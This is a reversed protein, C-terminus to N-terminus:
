PQIKPLPSPLDTSLSTLRGAREVLDHLQRIHIPHPLSRSVVHTVVGRSHRYFPPTRTYSAGRQFDFDFDSEKGRLRFALMAFLCELTRWKYVGQSLGFHNRYIIEM